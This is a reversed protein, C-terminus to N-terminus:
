TLNQVGPFREKFNSPRRPYGRQDVCCDANQKACLPVRDINKSYIFTLYVFTCLVSFNTCSYGIEKLDRIDQNMHGRPAPIGM